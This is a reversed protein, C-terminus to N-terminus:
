EEEIDITYTDNCRTERTVVMGDKEVKQYTYTIKKQIMAPDSKQIMAPDAACSTLLVTLGLTLLTVITKM